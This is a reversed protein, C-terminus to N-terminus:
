QGRTRCRPFLHNTHKSSDKALCNITLPLSLRVSEGNMLYIQFGSAVMTVADMHGQALRAERDFDAM